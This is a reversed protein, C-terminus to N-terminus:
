SGEPAMGDISAANHSRDGVRFRVTDGPRITVHDPDYVMTGTPGRNLMRIEITEALASTALAMCGVAIVILRHM